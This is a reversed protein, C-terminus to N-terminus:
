IYYDSLQREIFNIGEDVFSVEGSQRAVNSHPNLKSLQRSRWVRITHDDSASVLM